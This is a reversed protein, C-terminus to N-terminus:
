PEMEPSTGPPEFYDRLEYADAMITRCTWGERTKQQGPPPAGRRYLYGALIAMTRVALGPNSPATLRRRAAFHRLLRMQISTIFVEGPLEPAERRPLRQNGFM